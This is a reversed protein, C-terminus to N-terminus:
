TLHIHIDSDIFAELGKVKKDAELLELKSPFEVSSAIDLELLDNNYCYIAEVSQPITLKTLKNDSCWVVKFGYTITLEVLDYGDCELIDYNSIDTGSIYLREGKDTVGFALRM